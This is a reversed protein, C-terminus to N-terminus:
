RPHNGVMHVFGTGEVIQGAVWSDLDHRALLALTRDVDKAAVVATMGIGMNYTAEMEVDEIAGGTRIVDFIPRPRWTARDVVADVHDPLVRALNGPIGGGTIHAYAHVDTEYLLGLCVKAYIRSPTLLEEGLTRQRGLEDVVTDLRLRGAGLLVHRVLSYGNAHLGTSPMAIIADGAEVRHRGLIMDEDVVGVATASLDYEDRRMMGPVEATSSGLRVCGADRCGAAVGSIIEAVREPVLEGITVHESVFLPTAGSAVLDDAVMAILDIGVTDHVGMAQAIALKTGVGDTSAALVPRRYNRTDLRFLGAFGSRGDLRLASADTVTRTGVPQPAGNGALRRLTWEAMQVLPGTPLMVPRAALPRSPSRDQAPAGPPAFEQNIVASLLADSVEGAERRRLTDFLRERVGPRFDYEASDPDSRDAPTTRHLLGGLFVEAIEPLGAAPVTAQQIHHIVPLTLPAAAALRAALRVATPSASSRFRLLLADADGAGPDLAASRGWDEGVTLSATEFRSSGAILAAWSALWPQQLGFVPVHVPNGPPPPGDSPTFRLARNNEPPGFATLRGIRPSLATRPWLRQPLPQVVATPAHQALFRLLLGAPETRWFAGVGDTIVLIARQHTDQVIDRRTRILTGAADLSLRPGTPSDHLYRHQVTRFVRSRGLAVRLEGAPARWIDMSASADTVVLLDLWRRGVRRLLPLWFGFDARQRATADEDLLMRSSDPVRRNLPRLARALEASAAPSSTAQRRIQVREGLEVGRGSPDADDHQSTLAGAEAVGAMSEHQTAPAPAAPSQAAAHEDLPAPDTSAPPTDRGDVPLLAALWLAEAVEVPDLAPDLGQLARIAREVTM